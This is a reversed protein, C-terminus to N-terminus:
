RKPAKVLSLFITLTKPLLLTYKQMTSLLVTLLFNTLPKLVGEVVLPPGGGETLSVLFLLSKEPAKKPYINFKRILRTKIGDAVSEM